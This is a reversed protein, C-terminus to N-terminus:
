SLAGRHAEFESEPIPYFHLSDGPLYASLPELMISINKTGCNNWQSNSTPIALYGSQQACPVGAAAYQDLAGFIHGFEHAVVQSLEHTGYPGADSTIVLFPGNIYAYAFHGSRFLM